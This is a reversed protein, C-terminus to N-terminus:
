TKKMSEWVCGKCLDWRFVHYRIALNCVLKARISKVTPFSPGWMHFFFFFRMSCLSAHFELYYKDDVNQLKIGTQNETSGDGGTVNCRVLKQGGRRFYRICNRLKAILKIILILLTMIDTVDKVSLQLSNCFLFQILIVPFPLWM